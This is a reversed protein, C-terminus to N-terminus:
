KSGEKLIKGFQRIYVQDAPDFPNLLSEAYRAADRAEAADFNDQRIRAHVEEECQPCLYGNSPKGCSCRYQPAQPEEYVEEDLDLPEPEPEKYPGNRLESTKVASRRLKQEEEVGIISWLRRNYVLFGSIIQCPPFTPFPPFPPFPSKWLIRLNKPNQQSFDYPLVIYPTHCFFISFMAQSNTDMRSQELLELILTITIVEIHAFGYTQQHV